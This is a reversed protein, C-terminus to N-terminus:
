LSPCINELFIVVEAMSPRIDPLPHWMCELLEAMPPPCGPPMLPRSGQVVANAIAAPPVDSFPSIFRGTTVKFIM